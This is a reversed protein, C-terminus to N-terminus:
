RLALRARRGSRAGAGSEETREAIRDPTTTIRGVNAEAEELAQRLCPLAEVAEDDIAKAVEDIDPHESGDFRM